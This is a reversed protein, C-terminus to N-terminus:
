AEVAKGWRVMNWAREHLYFFTANVITSVGAYIAASGWSGSILYPTLFNLFITAVIRWSISKGITRPHGENWVKGDVEKRNWQPRNWVREHIWYLITALIANIGAIQVGQMWSGTSIYGVVIHIITFLIRLTIVKGITRHHTETLKMFDGYLFKCVIYDFILGM